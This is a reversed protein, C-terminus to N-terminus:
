VIRYYQFIISQIMITIKIILLVETKVSCKSKELNSADTLSLKSSRKYNSHLLNDYENFVKFDNKSKSQKIKKSKKLDEIEEDCSSTEM